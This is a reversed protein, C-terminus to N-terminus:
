RGDKRTDRIFSNHWRKESLPQNDYLLARKNPFLAHNNPFLSRKNFFVRHTNGIVGLTNEIVGPTNIIVGFSYPPCISSFIEEEM